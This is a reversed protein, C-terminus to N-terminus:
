PANTSSPGGIITIPTEGPLVSVPPDAPDPQPSAISVPVEPQRQAPPVTADTHAPEPPPTSEHVVHLTPASTTPTTPAPIM